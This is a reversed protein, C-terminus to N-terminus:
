KDGGKTIYKIYEELTWLFTTDNKVLLPVGAMERSYSDAYYLIDVLSEHPHKELYPKVIENFRELTELNTM